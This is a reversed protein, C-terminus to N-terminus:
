LLKRYNQREGLTMDRATIPRFTSGSLQELVVFLYRGNVTRGYVRYRNRGERRARHRPDRCVEEVEDAEVNHEAVHDIRYDDWVLEYIYM